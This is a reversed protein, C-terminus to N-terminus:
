RRAVTEDDAAAVDAGRERGEDAAATARPGLTDEEDEGYAEGCCSLLDALRDRLLVEVVTPTTEEGRGRFLSSPSIAL